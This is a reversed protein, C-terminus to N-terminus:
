PKISRGNRSWDRLAITLRDIGAGIGFSVIMTAPTGLLESAFRIFVTIVAVNTFFSSLLRPMTDRLFFGWDWHYPTLPSDKDRNNIDIKTILWMGFIAMIIGAVLRNPDTNGLLQDLVGARTLAARAHQLTDM